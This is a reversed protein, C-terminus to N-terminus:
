SSGKVKSAAEILANEAGIIEETKDLGSMIEQAKEKRENPTRTVQPKFESSQGPIRQLLQAARNDFKEIGDAFLDITTRGTTQMGLDLGAQKFYKLQELFPPQKKVEESLRQIQDGLRLQEAQHQDSLRQLEAQHRKEREDDLQRKLGEDEPNTRAQTDSHIKMIEAELKKTRLQSEEEMRMMRLDHEQQERRDRQYGIYERDEGRGFGESLRESGIIRDRSLGVSERGRSIRRRGGVPTREALVNAYEDQISFVRDLARGLLGPKTSPSYDLILYYLERESEQLNKDDRFDDVISKAKPETVGPTKILEKLLKNAMREIMQDYPDEYGTGEGEEKEKVDEPTLPKMFKGCEPCKHRLGRDTEFTEPVVTTGCISCIRDKSTKRQPEETTEESSEETTKDEEETM